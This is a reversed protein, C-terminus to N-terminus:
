SGLTWEEGYSRLEVIEVIYDEYAHMPSDIKQDHLAKHLLETRTRCGYEFPPLKDATLFSFTDPYFKIKVKM